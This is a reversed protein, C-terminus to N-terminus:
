EQEFLQDVHVSGDRCWPELLGEGHRIRVLLLWRRGSNNVRNRDLKRLEPRVIRQDPETLYFSLKSDLFDSDGQGFEMIDNGGKRLLYGRAHYVNESSRGGVVWVLEEFGAQLLGVRYRLIVTCLLEHVERSESVLAGRM